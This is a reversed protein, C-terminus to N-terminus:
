DAGCYDKDIFRELTNWLGCKYRDEPRLLGLAIGGDVMDLIIEKQSSYEKRPFDWMPCFTVYAIDSRITPLAGEFAKCAVKFANGEWPGSECKLSQRKPPLSVPQFQETEQRRLEEEFELRRREEIQLQVERERQEIRLQEEIRVQELEERVRIEEAIRINEQEIRIQEEQIRIQEQEIFIREEEIDIITEEETVITIQEARRIEEEILNREREEIVVRQEEIIRLEDQIRIIEEQRLSEEVELRRKEEEFRSQEEIVIRQRERIELSEEIRQRFEDSIRILEDQTFTSEDWPIVELDGPSPTTDPNPGTPQTIILPGDEKEDTGIPNGFEDFCGAQSSKDLGKSKGELLCDLDTPQSLGDELSDKNEDSPETLAATVPKQPVVPSTGDFSASDTCALVLGLALSQPMWRMWNKRNKALM